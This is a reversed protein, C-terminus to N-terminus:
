EILAVARVPSGSGGMIKLPFAIFTFRKNVVQELNALGEIHTMGLERCARHAPFTADDPHDTSPGEIGHMKVKKDHFWRSAEYTLGPYTREWANIDPWTRKHHGTNMLVIDGQTLPVGSTQVAAELDKVDIIGKAPIHSLDLCIAPGYFTELPMRDVTMGDPSLHFPADAHTGVHDIMSMFTTAYSGGSKSKKRTEEHTQHPLIVPRPFFFHSPMNNYLETSLDIIRM